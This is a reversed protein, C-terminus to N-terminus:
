QESQLVMQYVERKPLGAKTAAEKIASKKDMGSNLLNNVEQLIDENTMQGVEEGKFGEVVLVFEGKPEKAEFYDIAGKITTRIVQEYMKTLERCLAIKRDGLHSYLDSLTKRLKHPAEYFILTQTHMKIEELHKNRQPKNVSLFGEFSFRGTDLGSVILAQVFACAGPIPVVDIDKEACLKVIDEGPDSIAPTGADTVLACNEGSEIRSVIYEGRQRKNHEFYSVMPKKIGFKNLLKLTNRTDEAAIFDVNQLVEIARKSMDSLNGIPTAVLYLKHESM